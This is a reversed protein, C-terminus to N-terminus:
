LAWQAEGAALTGLSALDREAHSQRLFVPLDCAMRAFHADRCFAYAGLARGTHHLVADAAAEAAARARLALRQAPAFPDDDIYAALEALLARCQALAVDVAGLHAAAHPEPKRAVQRALAQGLSAAAGYWCAAIGAGGHWFGPRSTYAGPAGVARAQAREFVVDVSATARMGEGQWGEDTVIVGPQRLSVAVLQQRQRQDWATVLAHTLEAAGSCWSKRGTVHVPGANAGDANEVADVSLRASSSEAAWVGWLTHAPLPKDDLEWAIAIADTHGEYLKALSLDHAAVASLTQWRELTEGGGPLPLQDLGAACLQRLAAVVDRVNDLPQVLAALARDIASAPAVLARSQASPRVLAPLSEANSM